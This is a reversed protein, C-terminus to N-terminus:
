RRQIQVPPLGASKGTWMKYAGCIGFHNLIYFGQVHRSFCLDLLPPESFTMFYWFASDFILWSHWSFFIQQEFSNGSLLFLRCHGPSIKRLSTNTGMKRKGWVQKERCFKLFFCFFRKHQEHCHKMKLGSNNKELLMPPLMYLHSLM